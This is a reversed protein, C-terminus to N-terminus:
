IGEEYFIAAQSSLWKKVAEKVDDGKLFRQGGLFKKLRLFLHFDSAALHPSFPLPRYDFQEGTLHRSSPKLKLLPTRGLMTMFCCLDAPLSAEGKTRSLAVFIRWPRVIPQQTKPQAKLCSNLLCFQKCIWFVTCMTKRTSITHKFKCKKPSSTHRWEMSQQKSEPTLHSVWTEDDKVIQSLFRDGQESYRVLFILASAARKKKHEESLM